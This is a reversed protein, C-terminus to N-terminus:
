AIDIFLVDESYLQRMKELLLLISLAKRGAGGGGLKWGFVELKWIKQNVWKLGEHPTYHCRKPYSTTYNIVM